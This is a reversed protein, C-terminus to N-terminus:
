IGVKHRVWQTGSVLLLITVGVATIYTLEVPPRMDPTVSAYGALAVVSLLMGVYGATAGTRLLHDDREDFERSRGHNLRWEYGLNIGVIAGVVPLLGILRVRGSLYIQLATGAAAMVAFLIINHRLPLLRM